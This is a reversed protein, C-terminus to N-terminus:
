PGKQLLGTRVSNTKLVEPGSGARMRLFENCDSTQQLIMANVAWARTELAGFVFCGAIAPHLVINLQKSLRCTLVM